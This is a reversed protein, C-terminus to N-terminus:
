GNGDDAGKGQKQQAMVRAADARTVHTLGLRRWQQFLPEAAREEPTLNEELDAARVANNLGLKLWWEREARDM